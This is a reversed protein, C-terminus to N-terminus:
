LMMRRRRRLQRPRPMRAVTRREKLICLKRETDINRTLIAKIEQMNMQSVDEDDITIIQDCPKVMNTLVSSPRVASVFTGLSSDTHNEIIIGLTGAAAPATFTITTPTIVATAAINRRLRGLEMLKRQREAKDAFTADKEAAVKAVKTEKAAREAVRRKIFEDTRM